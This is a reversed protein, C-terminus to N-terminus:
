HARKREQRVAIIVIISLPNCVAEVCHGRQQLRDTLADFAKGDRLIRRLLSGMASPFAGASASLREVESSISLSAVSSSAASLQTSDAFLRFATAPLASRRCSVSM